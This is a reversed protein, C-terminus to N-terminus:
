SAAYIKSYSSRLTQCVFICQIKHVPTFMTCELYHLLYQATHKINYSSFQKFVTTFGTCYIYQHLYVSIYTSTWIFQM